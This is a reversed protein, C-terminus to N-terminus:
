GIRRVQSFGIEGIGNVNLQLGSTTSDLTVSGVVGSVLTSVAETAEGSQATARIQYRGAPAPSGDALTGDWSFEHLGSAQAGLDLTQVPQGAADLIDLRVASASATLEIAGELPQGPQLEAFEGSVLVEQGVLSAGQLTQWQTMSQALTEFSASLEEIGTVTSFQALEGLFEGNEMPKLPDQNALQTTMLKLFEEQGLEDAGETYTKGAEYSSLGLRSLADPQITSM